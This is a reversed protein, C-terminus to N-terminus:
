FRLSLYGQALLKLDQYMENGGLLMTFMSNHSEHLLEKKLENDTPVCLRNHFYLSEDGRVSFDTKDNDKVLQVKKKLEEDKKQVDIIMQKLVPQAKLQALLAGYKALRWDNHQLSLAAMTKRSLADAVVNAKSLHYEIICDYDKFM